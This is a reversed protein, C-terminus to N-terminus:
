EESTFSLTNLFDTDLGHDFGVSHLQRRMTTVSFWANNDDHVSQLGQLLKLVPQLHSVQPFNEVVHRILKNEMAPDYAEDPIMCGAACRLGDPTRYYCEGDVLAQRSQAFLHRAVTEFVAQPNLAETM